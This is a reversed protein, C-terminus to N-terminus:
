GYQSSLTFIYVVATSLSLAGKVHTITHHSDIAGWTACKHQVLVQIILESQFPKEFTEDDKIHGYLFVLKLLLSKAFDKCDEDTKVDDQLSMFNM